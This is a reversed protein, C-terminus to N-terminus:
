RETNMRRRAVLIVGAGIVLIAGVVYFLTTGMGGTSPLVSGAQNVVEVSKGEAIAEDASTLDNETVTVDETLKNYGKPAEIESLSYQQKDLGQIETSSHAKLDITTTAGTEGLSAVRYVSGDGNVDIFQVKTTGLTLEFKAGTLGTSGDTKDLKFKYTDTETKDSGLEVKDEGVCDYKVDANNGANETAADALIIADYTLTVEINAQGDAAAYISNGDSDIWDITIELKGADGAAVSVTAPHSTADVVTGESIVSISGVKVAVTDSKITMNTPQDDIYFKTVKKSSVSTGSGTTVYNTANYTVKFSETTGVAADNTEANLSTQDSTGIVADEATIVKTPAEPKQPNKDKVVVDKKSNDIAVVTGLGSTVYYYGYALNGFVVKNAIARKNTDLGSTASVETFESLNDNIWAAITEADTSSDTLQVNHNGAADKTGSITFPGAPLDTGEVGGLAEFLTADATYAINDGDYTADFVKYARYTVGVTANDITVSGDAGDAFATMGMAMVMLAALVLAMIKKVKKM